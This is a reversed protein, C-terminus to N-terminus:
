LPHFNGPKKFYEQMDRSLSSMDMGYMVPESLKQGTIIDFTACHFPCSILKKETNLRIQEMSMPANM